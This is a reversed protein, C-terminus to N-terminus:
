HMHVHFAGDVVDGLPGCGVWLDFTLGSLQQETGLTCHSSAGQSVPAPRECGKIGEGQRSWEHHWCHLILQTLFVLQRIVRSVEIYAKRWSGKMDVTGPRDRTTLSETYVYLTPLKQNPRHQALVNLLQMMDLQSYPRAQDVPLNSEGILQEAAPPLHGVGALFDLLGGAPLVADGGPAGPANGAVAAGPQAPMGPQVQLMGGLLSVFEASTPSKRCLPGIAIDIAEAQAM